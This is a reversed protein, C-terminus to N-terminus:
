NIKRFKLNKLEDPIELDYEAFNKTLKKLLNDYHVAFYDEAKKSESVEYDYINGEADLKETITECLLIYNNIVKNSLIKYVKDVEGALYLKLIEIKSPSYTSFLLTSKIAKVNNAMNWVKFFLMVNLISIAIIILISIFQM